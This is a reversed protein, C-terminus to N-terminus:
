VTVELFYGAHRRMNLVRDGDLLLYQGKIGLLTGEIEAQKDFNVSKVKKPFQLVPYNLELVKDSKPLHQEIEEGFAEIIFAEARKRSEILDGIEAVENRLMKRWDTKDTFQDKLAVEIQGALRRYPVEALVIAAGAGQDIWRTPVQTARTVGVKIASNLALYVIHPQVHHRQEWEVDRGKGLHGECLEPHIICPSNQPANRFCPYCFGQAFSKKTLRGCNKCNIVGDFRMSIPLGLQANLDIADSGIPLQYDIEGDTLATRMKYINGSFFAM